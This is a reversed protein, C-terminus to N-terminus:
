FNLRVVKQHQEKRGSANSTDNGDSLLPHYETGIDIKTISPKTGAKKRIQKRM